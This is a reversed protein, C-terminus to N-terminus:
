GQGEVDFTFESCYSTSALEFAAQWVARPYGPENIEADALARGADVIGTADAQGRLYTCLRAGAEAIQQDSLEPVQFATRYAAVFASLDDATDSYGAIGEPPPPVSSPPGSPPGIQPVAGPTGAPEPTSLDVAPLLSVSPVAISTAAPSSRSGTDCAVLTAAIVAAACAFALRSPGPRSM